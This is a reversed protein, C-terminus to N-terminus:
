FLPLVLSHLQPKTQSVLCSIPFLSSNQILQTHTHRKPPQWAPYPGLQPCQQSIPLVPRLGPTQVTGGEAKDGQGNNIPCCPLPGSPCSPGWGGLGGGRPCVPVGGGGWFFLFCSPSSQGADLTQHTQPPIAPQVRGGEERIFDTSKRTSVLTDTNM